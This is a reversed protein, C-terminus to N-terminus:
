AAKGIDTLEGGSPKGKSGAQMGSLGSAGAISNADFSVLAPCDANDGKKHLLLAMCLREAANGLDTVQRIKFSGLTSNALIRRDIPVANLVQLHGRATRNGSLVFHLSMPRSRGGADDVPRATCLLVEFMEGTYPASTGEM